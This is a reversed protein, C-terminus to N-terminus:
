SLGVLELNIIFHNDKVLWGGSINNITMLTFILVDCVTSFVNLTKKDILSKKLKSM